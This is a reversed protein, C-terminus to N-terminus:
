GVVEAKNATGDSFILHRLHWLTTDLETREASIEKITRQVIDPHKSILRIRRRKRVPQGDCGHVESVPKIERLVRSENQVRMLETKKEELAEKKTQLKSRDHQDLARGETRGNPALKFGAELQVRCKYLDRLIAALSM